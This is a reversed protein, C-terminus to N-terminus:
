GVWGFLYRYLRWLAWCGLILIAELALPGLPIFYNATGLFESSIGDPRDLVLTPLLSFALAAGQVFPYLILKFADIMVSAMSVVAWNIYCFLTSSFNDWWSLDM